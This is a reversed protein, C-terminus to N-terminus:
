NECSANLEIIKRRQTESILELIRQTSLMLPKYFLRGTEKSPEGFPVMSHFVGVIDGELNRVASGSNCEVGVGDTVISGKPIYTGSQVGVAQTVMIVREEARVPWPRDDEKYCSFRTMKVIDGVEVTQNSLKYCNQMKLENVQVIAFDGGSSYGADSLSNHTAIVTDSEILNSFRPNLNGPGLAFIKAFIRSNDLGVPVTLSHSLYASDYRIISLIGNKEVSLFPKLRNQSNRIQESISIASELCHRALLVHGEKSILTGTCTSNTFGLSYISLGLERTSSTERAWERKLLFASDSLEFSPELKIEQASVFLFSGGVILLLIKKFISVIRM